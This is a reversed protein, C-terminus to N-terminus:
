SKTPCGRANIPAKCHGSMSSILKYQPAKHSLLKLADSMSVPYFAASKRRQVYRDLYTLDPSIQFFDCHRMSSEDM